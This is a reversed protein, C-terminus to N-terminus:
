AIKDFRLTCYAANGSDTIFQASDLEEALSPILRCILTGVFHYSPKINPTIDQCHTLKLGYHAALKRYLSLNIIKHSGWFCEGPVDWMGVAAGEPQLFDTMTLSGGPRLTRRVQEFFARRSPFHFICEVATIRDFSADPFTMKCADGVVFDLQNTPKALWRKRAQEIQRPDINLGTLGM